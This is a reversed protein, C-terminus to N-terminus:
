KPLCTRREKLSAKITALIEKQLELHRNSTNDSHIRRYVVIENLIGLPIGQHHAKFFWAVDSALPHAPDFNGTLEFTKRRAMLASPLYALQPQMLFDAKLWHPKSCGPQLYMQQWGIVGGHSENARLFNLQQALKTPSWIDDQDLFALFDGQAQAVGQHRAFATNAEQFYIYTVKPFSLAIGRTEDTSGNDILLIEYHDYTQAEVSKLAEALYTAGNHAPIIISILPRTM